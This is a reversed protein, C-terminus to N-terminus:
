SKGTHGGTSPPPRKLNSSPTEKFLSFDTLLKVVQQRGLTTKVCESFEEDEIPPEGINIIDKQIENPNLFASAYLFRSAARGDDVAQKIHEFNLHWTTRVALREPSDYESVPTAKQRNLLRIHQKDYLELYQPITCPLSKIYAGAQELALPLGGLQQVLKEAVRDVEEDHVIGFRRFLFKKGEEIEFCKLSLCCREDFDRIDNALATPKRRTTILLHGSADHQWLGSVLKVINPSFDLQDMNDLIILWPKRNRYIMALTASFTLRFSDSQTGFHTAVDYVSNELMADEEASLWYVGGTYFDKRQQAYEAALSTKGVGGLGCVAAINVRPQRATGNDLQFLTELDKIESLRGVFWPNQRLAYFLYPIENTTTAIKAVENKIKQVDQVTSVYQNHLTLQELKLRDM